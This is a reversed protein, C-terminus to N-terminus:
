VNPQPGKGKRVKEGWRSAKADGLKQQTVVPGKGDKLAIERRIKEYLVRRGKKPKMEEGLM